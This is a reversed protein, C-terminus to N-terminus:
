VFRWCCRCCFDHLLWQTLNFVFILKKRKEWHIEYKTHCHHRARHKGSRVNRRQVSSFYLKLDEFLSKISEKAEEEKNGFYKMFMIIFIKLIKVKLLLLFWTAVGRGTAFTGLVIASAFPFIKLSYQNSSRWRKWRCSSWSIIPWLSTSWTFSREARKGM